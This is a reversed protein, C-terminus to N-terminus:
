LKVNKCNALRKKHYAIKREYIMIKEEHKFMQEKAIELEDDYLEEVELREIYFTLRKIHWAMKRKYKSIRNTIIEDENM